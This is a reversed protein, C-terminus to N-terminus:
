LLAKWLMLSMVLTTQSYGLDVLVANKQLWARQVQLQQKTFPCQEITAYCAAFAIHSPPALVAIFAELKWGRGPKYPAVRLEAPRSRSLSMGLCSIVQWRTSHAHVPMLVASTLGTLLTNCKLQMGTMSHTVSSCATHKAGAM